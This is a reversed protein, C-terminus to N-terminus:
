DCRRHRRRSAPGGRDDCTPREDGGLRRRNFGEGGKLPSLSPGALCSPSTPQSRAVAEAGRGGSRGAPGATRPSGEGGPWRPSLNVRADSSSFRAKGGKSRSSELIERNIAGIAAKRAM